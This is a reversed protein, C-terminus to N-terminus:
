YCSFNSASCKQAEKVGSIVDLFGVDYNCKSIELFWSMSSVSSGSTVKRSQRNLQLEETNNIDTLM